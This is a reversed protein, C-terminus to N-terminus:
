KTGAKAQDIIQKLSAVYPAAGGAKYGTQGVLKGDPSLIIITPYGGVGYKKQLAANAKKQKMSQAKQRPFDVTVCVLNAEAFEKFEKQSFVERELKMCWGCWDSGTFDLFVYKNQSKAQAQAKDPDETWLGARAGACTALLLGVTLAGYKLMKM